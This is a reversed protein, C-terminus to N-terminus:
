NCSYRVIRLSSPRADLAQRTAYNETSHLEPTNSLGISTRSQGLQRGFPDQQNAAPNVVENMSLIRLQYTKHAGLEKQCARQLKSEDRQQNQRGALTYALVATRDTKSEVKYGVFSKENQQPLSQCASLGLGLGTMAFIIMTNKMTKNM